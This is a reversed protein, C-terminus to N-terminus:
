YFSAICNSIKDEITDSANLKRTFDFNIICDVTNKAIREAIGTGSM